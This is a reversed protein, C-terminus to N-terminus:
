RQHITHAIVVVFYIQIIVRWGRFLAFQPLIRQIQRRHAGLERIFLALLVPACQFLKRLIRMKRIQQM